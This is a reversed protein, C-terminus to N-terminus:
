KRVEPGTGPFASLEFLAQQRRRGLAISWESEGFAPHMSGMLLQWATDQDGCGATALAMIYNSNLETVLEAPKLSNVIMSYQNFGALDGALCALSAMESYNIEPTNSPFPDGAALASQVTNLAKGAHEAAESNRDVQQLLIAAIRNTSARQYANAGDLTSDLHVLWQDINNKNVKLQLYRGLSSLNSFNVRNGWGLPPSIRALEDGADLFAQKDGYQHMQILGLNGLMVWLGPFKEVGTRLLELTEEVKGLGMMHYTLESTISPYEPDLSRAQMAIDLGEEFRGLRKYSSSVQLLLQTDNPLTPLAQLYDELASEYDREITYHFDGRAFATEPREPWKQEILRLSDRAKERYIGEPDAGTWLLRGYVRSLFVQGNLFEPDLSVAKELLPLADIFGQAGQWERRMERARSFLDYADLNTTPVEAIRAVAEASMETELQRAIQQAIDSQIAFIDDLKRDYNEAGSISTKLRM